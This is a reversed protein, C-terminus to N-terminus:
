AHFEETPVLHWSARGGRKAARKDLHRLYAKVLGLYLRDTVALGFGPFPNFPNGRSYAWIELRSCKGETGGRRHLGFTNAVVLTNAKVAFLRPEVLEMEELDAAEARMSGRRGYEDAMTAGELSRRYEWALRRGLLKHSGPVFTFPGKEEPVDELFLWAKLSPHFADSHLFKQPDPKGAVHGNKIKQFYFLPRANRSSAFKLLRLLGPEALASRTAPLRALTEGDLLIRQTLTDGQVCERVEGDCSKAERLVQEFIEPPLCNEVTVYGDALFKRRTERGVLPALLWWRLHTMGHALLLRFVHLGCRNLVRNGLIPNDRFSKASTFVQALWWPWLWLKQM